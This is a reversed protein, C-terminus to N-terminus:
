FFEESGTLRARESASLQFGVPVMGATTKVKGVDHDALMAAFANYSTVQLLSMPIANM